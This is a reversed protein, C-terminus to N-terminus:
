TDQPGPPFPATGEADGGFTAALLQAVIRVYGQLGDPVTMRAVEDDNLVAGGGRLGCAIIVQLDRASVRGSEFRQALAALDDVRFKAELEALAGLTLVLTYTRGGLEAEIEGRRHNAM